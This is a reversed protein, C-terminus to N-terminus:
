KSHTDFVHSMLQPVVGVGDAAVAADVGDVCQPYVDMRVDLVRVAAGSNSHCQVRIWSGMVIGSHAPWDFLALSRVEDSGLHISHARDAVTSACGGAGAAADAAAGASGAATVAGTATAPGDRGSKYPWWRTVGYIQSLSVSPVSMFHGCGWVQVDVTVDDGRVGAVSGAQVTVVVDRIVARHLQLPVRIYLSDRPTLAADSGSPECHLQVVASTAHVHLRPAVTVAAGHSFLVAAAASWRHLPSPDDVGDRLLQM